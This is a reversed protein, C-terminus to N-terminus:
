IAEQLCEHFILKATMATTLTSEKTKWLSPRPHHPEVCVCVCVCVYIHESAFACMCVQESVSM